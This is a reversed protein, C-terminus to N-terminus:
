HLAESARWEASRRRVTDTIYLGGVRINDVMYRPTKMPDAIRGSARRYARAVPIKVGKSLFAMATNKDCDDPTKRVASLYRPVGPKALRDVCIRDFCFFIAEIVHKIM